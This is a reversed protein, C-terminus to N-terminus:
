YLTIRVVTINSFLSSLIVLAGCKKRKQARNNYKVLCRSLSSKHNGHVYITLDGVLVLLVEKGESPLWSLCIEKGTVSTGEHLPILYYVVYCVNLSSISFLLVSSCIRVSFLFFM